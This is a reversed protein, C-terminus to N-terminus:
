TLYSWGIITSGLNDRIEVNSVLLCEHFSQGKILTSDGRGLWYRSSQIPIIHQGSIASVLTFIQRWYSQLSKCYWLIHALTGQHGCQRWCLQDPLSAIQKASFMVKEKVYYFHIQALVYRSTSAPLFAPKLFRHARDIAAKLNSLEPILSRM